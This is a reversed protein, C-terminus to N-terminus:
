FMQDTCNVKLCRNNFPLLQMIKLRFSAIKTTSPPQGELCM